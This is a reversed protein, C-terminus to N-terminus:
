LFSFVCPSDLFQFIVPHSKSEALVFLIIINAAAYIHETTQKTRQRQFVVDIEKEQCLNQVTTILQAIYLPIRWINDRKQHLTPAQYMLKYCDNKVEIKDNGDCFNQLLIFNKFNPFQRICFALDIQNNLQNQHFYDFSSLIKLFVYKGIGEISVKLNSRQKSILGVVTIIREREPIM